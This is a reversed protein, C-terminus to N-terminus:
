IFPIIGKIINVPAKIIAKIGNKIFISKIMKNIIVDSIEQIPVGKDSRVDDFEM